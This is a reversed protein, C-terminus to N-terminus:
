NKCLLLPYNLLYANIVTVHVSSLQFTSKPYTPDMHLLGSKKNKLIQKNWKLTYSCNAYTLKTSIAYTYM